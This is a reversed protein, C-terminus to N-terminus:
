RLVWAASPLTQLGVFLSKLCQNTLPNIGMALGFLLGISASIGFGVTMHLFTARVSPWLLGESALEWLRGAVMYPSPFIYKPLLGVDFVMQWFVILFTYFLIVTMNQKVM